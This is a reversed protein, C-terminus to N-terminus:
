MLTRVLNDSWVFCVLYWLWRGLSTSVGTGEIQACFHLLMPVTLVQIPSRRSHYGGGLFFASQLQQSSTNSNILIQSPVASLTRENTLGPRLVQPKAAICVFLCYCYCYCYCDASEYCDHSKLVSKQIYLELNNDYPGQLVFRRGCTLPRKDSATGVDRDMDEM